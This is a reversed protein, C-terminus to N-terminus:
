AAVSKRTKEPVTHRIEENRQSLTDRAKKHLSGVSQRLNMKEYTNIAPLQLYGHLKLISFYAHLLDANTTRHYTFTRNGCLFCGADM